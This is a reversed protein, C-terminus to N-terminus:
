PFLEVFLSKKGRRKVLTLTDTYLPELSMSHRAFRM